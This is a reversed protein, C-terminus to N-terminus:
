LWGELNSTIWFLYKSVVTVTFICTANLGADDTATYKVVTTGIPFFSDSPFGSSHVSPPKGNDTATPQKFSSPLRISDDNDTYLLINSPCTSGFSPPERDIFSYDLLM